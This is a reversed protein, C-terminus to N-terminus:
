SHTPDDSFSETSSNSNYSAAKQEEGEGRAEQREEVHEGENDRV